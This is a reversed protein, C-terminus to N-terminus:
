FLHMTRTHCARAHIAVQLIRAGRTHLQPDGRLLYALTPSTLVAIIHPRAIELIPRIHQQVALRNLTIKRREDIHTAAIDNRRTIIHALIKINKGIRHNATEIHM